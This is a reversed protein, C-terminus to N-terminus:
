YLLSANIMKFLGCTPKLVICVVGHSTFDVNSPALCSTFTNNMVNIPNEIVLNDEENDPDQPQDQVFLGFNSTEANDHMEQDLDMGTKM